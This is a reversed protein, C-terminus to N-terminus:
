IILKKMESLVFLAAVVIAGSFITVDYWSHGSMPKIIIMCLMFITIPILIALRYFFTYRKEPSFDICTFPVMFGKVLVASASIDSIIEFITYVWPSTVSAFVAMFIGQLWEKVSSIGWVTIAFFLAYVYAFCVMICPYLLIRVGHPMRSLNYDRSDVYKGYAALLIAASALGCLFATLMLGMNGAFTRSIKSDYDNKM